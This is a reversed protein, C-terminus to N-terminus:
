IYYALKIIANNHEWAFENKKVSVLGVQDVDWTETEFQNSMTWKDSPRQVFRVRECSEPGSMLVVCFSCFDIEMKEYAFANVM